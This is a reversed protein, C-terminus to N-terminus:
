KGTPRGYRKLWRKLATPDDDETGDQGEEVLDLQTLCAWRLDDLTTMRLADYDVSDPLDRVAQEFTPQKPAQKKAQKKKAM